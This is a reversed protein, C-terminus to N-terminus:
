EEYTMSEIWEEIKQTDDPDIWTWKGHKRMWTLQRKAYNRSHQKIKELAEPLGIQNELYPLLEQYGVTRMAPCDRYRLLSQVEEILGDEFMDDVRQDIRHYLQEREHHIAFYAMPHDMTLVSTPIYDYISRGTQDAIKAARLLRHTNYIDGREMFKPDTSEMKKHITEIGHTDLLKNWKQDTEPSIEPIQALGETLATLYFGTGGTIIIIREDRYKGNILLAAREAFKGASFVEDPDLIDIMEYKLRNLIDRSPKATGIDFGRYIQRSDASIIPFDYQFALREALSSKGSATPGGIILLAPIREKKNL